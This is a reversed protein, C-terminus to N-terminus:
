VATGSWQCENFNKQKFYNIKIIEDKFNNNNNEIKIKLVRGKKPLRGNTWIM